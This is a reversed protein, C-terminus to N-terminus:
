VHTHKWAWFLGMAAALLGADFVLIALNARLATCRQGTPAALVWLGRWATMAALLSAVIWVVTCPM